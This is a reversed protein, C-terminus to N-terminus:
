PCAVAALPSRAFRGRKPPAKEQGSRGDRACHSSSDMFRLKPSADWKLGAERTRPKKQDAINASLWLKNARTQQRSLPTLKPQEGIM